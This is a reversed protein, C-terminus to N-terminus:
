QQKKELFGRSIDLVSKKFFKKKSTENIGFIPAEMYSHNSSLKVSVSMSNFLSIFCILGENPICCLLLFHSDDDVKLYEKFNLEIINDFGSGHVYELAANYDANLLIKSINIAEQDQYYQNISDVAFEYAIKLLGIKFEYPEISIITKVGSLDLAVDEKEVSYSKTSLNNKNLIREIIQTSLPYDMEDLTFNLEVKGDDLNKILPPSPLVYQYVHGNDDIRNQFRIDDNLTINGSYPNPLRKSKGLTKHQLRLLQIFKNDVLKTDVKSGLHSNCKKCVNKIHYYGGLADPIVHEDSFLVENQRCIICEIM